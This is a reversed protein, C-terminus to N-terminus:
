AQGDSERFLDIIWETNVVPFSRNDVEYRSIDQMMEEEVVDVPILFAMGRDGTRVNIKMVQNETRQYEISTIDEPNGKKNDVFEIFCDYKALEVLRDDLEDEFVQIKEPLEKLAPIRRFRYGQMHLPDSIGRLSAPVEKESIWLVFKHRKDLYVFPYQVMYEKKCHPCSVRFLDGSICRDRLDEEEANISQYTEVEFERGCYPCTYMATVPEKM